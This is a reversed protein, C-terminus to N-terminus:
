QEVRLEQKQWAINKANLLVKKSCKIQLYVTLGLSLIIGYFSIQISNDISLLFVLCPEHKHCVRYKVISLICINAICRKLEIAAIM